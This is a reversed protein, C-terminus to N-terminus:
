VPTGEFMLDCREVFLEKIASSSWLSGSRRDMCEEIKAESNGAGEERALQSFKICRIKTEESEPNGLWTDELHLNRFRRSENTM